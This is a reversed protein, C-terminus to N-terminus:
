EGSRLSFILSLEPQAFVQRVCHRPAREYAEALRLAIEAGTADERDLGQDPPVMGRQTRQKGGAAFRRRLVSCFASLAIGPDDKSAM